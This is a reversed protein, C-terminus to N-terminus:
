TKFNEVTSRLSDSQKNMEKVTRELKLALGANDQAAKRVTEIASVIRKSLMMQDGTAEAVTSIKEAVVLIAETLHRGERSQEGTTLKVKEMFEKMRHTDTLVERVAASQENAANKIEGVMSSIVQAANSIQSAAKTQEATAKEILKAMQFSHRSSDLIKTLAEQAGRSLRVGDAVRGSSRKMSEIATAVENQVHGILGSIEKTSATTKTALDKVQRAVVGFGKGHEGAQSALITANLALLHTTDAFDNIVTLIQGIEQSREGLRNVVESTHAVEQSVKEIGERTKVVSNLGLDEADLRVKEAVEAQRRAYDEVEKVRSSISLISSVVDETKKFLEEIHSAVQNITVAVGNVSSNISSGSYFLKEINARVEDVAASMTKASVSLEASSESLGEAEEAVTKISADMEKISASTEEVAGLQRNVGEIIERSSAGIDRSASAIEDSIGFIDKVMYQLGDVFRNFWRSFMGIEDESTIDLRKTLDGKGEAIGKLMDVTRRLPRTVIRNILLGLLFTMVAITILGHLLWRNRSTGLLSYMEELSTSIMLVGRAAEEHAHCSACKPRAEIPVLYTFLSRDGVEEIYDVAEKRGENFLMLARKFEPNQIGEAVNNTKDPHEVLWEEKIEGFEKEVAELTKKDQFAEEVGNSRIIQVRDVGEITKLDEILFRPMDAREELMDKYITELIPRAMLESANRRERLLNKEEEKIVTYILVGLGILSLGIALNLIKAKLGQRFMKPKVGTFLKLVLM